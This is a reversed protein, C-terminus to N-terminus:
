SSQLHFDLSGHHERGLYAITVMDLNKILIQFSIIEDISFYLSNELLFIFLLLAHRKADSLKIILPAVNGV